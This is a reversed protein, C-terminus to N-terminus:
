QVCWGNVTLGVSKRAVFLADVIDVQGSCDVDAVDENFSPVSLGVSFRAIFLADVIDVKGDGSVDGLESNGSTANRYGYKLDRSFIRYAIHPIDDPDEDLSLMYPGASGSTTKSSEITETRWFGGSYYTHEFSYSDLAFYAIHPRDSSDLALDCSYLEGRHYVAEQIQWSNGDYYAYKLADNDFDYYAIHPHDNSDLALSIGYTDCTDIVSIEWSSGNFYAYKIKESPPDLYAICPHSSSDLALSLRGIGHIDGIHDVVEPQWSNGDYHAYKLDGSNVDYYAILPFDNNDLSLSPTSGSDVEDIHWGGVDKYAYKVNDDDSYAIHPRNKSDMALSVDDYWLSDDVTEKYWKNGDNYAYLLGKSLYAIHPHLNSDLRFSVQSISSRNDIIETQWTNNKFYTHRVNDKDENIYVIHPIGSSDIALNPYYDELGLNTVTKIDWNNGSLSAYKIGPGHFLDGSLQDFMFAIYPEDNGDLALDPFIAYDDSYVTKIQWNSGNYYAYKIEDVWTYQSVQRKHVYAIHPYDNSDLCLCVESGEIGYTDMEEIHWSTGDFHAYKIKGGANYFIHPHDQSDFAMSIPTWSDHEASNDVTQIEWTNGNFYAYRLLNNREDFYAVYVHDKSDIAISSLEGSDESSEITTIHWNSGDFYAYKLVDNMKDYYSIHPYDKSDIALSSYEGVEQSTDVITINWANGDYIAYQLHTEGYAFHLNGKSDQILSHYVVGASHQYDVFESQWTACLGRNSLLTYIVFLFLLYKKM